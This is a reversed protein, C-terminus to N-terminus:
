KISGSVGNARGANKRKIKKPMRKAKEVINALELRPKRIEKPVTKNRIRLYKPTPFIRFKRRM